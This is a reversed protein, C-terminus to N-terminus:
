NYLNQLFSSTIEWEKITSQNLSNPKELTTKSKFLEEFPKWKMVL